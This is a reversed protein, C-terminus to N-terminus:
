VNAAAQKYACYLLYHFTTDNDPDGELSVTNGTFGM